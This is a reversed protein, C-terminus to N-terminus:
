QIVTKYFFKRRIEFFFITYKQCHHQVEDANSRPWSYVGTAVITACYPKGNYIMLNAFNEVQSTKENNRKVQMDISM